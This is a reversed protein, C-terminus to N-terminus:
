LVRLECTEPAAKHTYRKSNVVVRDVGDIVVVGDAGIARDLDVIVLANSTVDSGSDAAARQDPVISSADEVYARVPISPASLKPGSQGGPSSSRLRVTTNFMLAPPRM